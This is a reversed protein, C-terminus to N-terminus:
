APSQLAAAAASSLEAPPTPGALVSRLVAAKTESESLELSPDSDAVIGCGVGYHLRGNEITATRIAVSLDLSSGPGLMGIAGCYMGRPQSELEAAIQMARIKPAGTISGAPFTAKLLDLLGVDSKLRGHIEGVGHHVTPHSEIRRECTVRVTGIECVRGLDNRMLDIIMHLEAADKESAALRDAPESAPLTGKIPCSKINRNQDVELFLEPSMSVVTRDSESFEIYGGFATQPEQLAAVALARPNGRVQATLQRCLNVQFIDGAHIYEIAAAVAETWAAPEPTSRLPSRIEMPLPAAQNWHLTPPNGVSWWRSTIADHLYADPCRLFSVVPQDTAVGCAPELVAGLEYQLCAIWGAFPPLGPAADHSQRSRDVAAACGQLGQRAAEELDPDDPGIWRGSSCGSELLGDPRALVSWRGGTAPHSHLAALRSQVPWAALIELPVNGALEPRPEFRMGGIIPPWMGRVQRTVM